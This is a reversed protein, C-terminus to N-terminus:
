SYRLPPRADFPRHEAHRADGGPGPAQYICEGSASNLGPTEANEEFSKIWAHAQEPTRARRLLGPLASRRFLRSIYRLTPVFGKVDSKPWLLALLLDVPGDDPSGFPIPRRLTALVAAPSSVGDLRTHPVAVGHGISTPGLRERHLLGALVAGPTRGAAEGLRGAISTLAARKGHAEMGLFIDQKGILESLRLGAKEHDSLPSTPFAGDDASPMRTSMDFKPPGPRLAAISVADPRSAVGSFTGEM